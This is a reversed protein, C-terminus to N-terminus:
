AKSNENPSLQLYSSAYQIREGFIIPYNHSIEYSPFIYFSGDGFSIKKQYEWESLLNKQKKEYFPPGNRADSTDFGM